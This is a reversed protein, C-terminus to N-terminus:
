ATAEQMMRTTRYSARYVRYATVNDSAFGAVKAFEALDMLPDGHVAGCQGEAMAALIESDTITM